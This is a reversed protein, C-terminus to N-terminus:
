RRRHLHERLAAVVSPERELAGPLHAHVAGRTLGEAAPTDLRDKTPNGYTPDFLTVSVVAHLLSSQADYVERWAPRSRADGAIRALVEGVGQQFGRVHTGERSRVLNCYSVLSGEHGERWQLAIRASMSGEDLECVIPDHLATGVTHELLASVDASPGHQAREVVFSTELGPCLGALARLREDILGLDWSPGTFVERDPVAEVRTGRWTADLRELASVARGRAFRQRFVGADSGVEVTVATCAARIMALGLGGRGFHVHPAHGDATPSSHPETLVRELFTRGEDGVAVSIGDGDDRVIVGGASTVTVEISSVRGVLYQDLSNSLLEELLHHLGSGDRVDGFYM